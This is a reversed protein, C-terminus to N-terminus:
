GAHPMIHLVVNSTRNALIEQPAAGAGAATSSSALSVRAAEAGHLTGGRGDLVQPGDAFWSGGEPEAAAPRLFAMQAPATGRTLISGSGFHFDTEGVTAGEINLNYSKGGDSITVVNAKAVTVKAGPVYVVSDLTISDGSGATFGSIAVSPVATDVLAGSTGTFKIGATATGGSLVLTGGSITTSTTTGGSYVEMLGGSGVTTSLAKGTSLVILGGSSTVTTGYGVGGSVLYL